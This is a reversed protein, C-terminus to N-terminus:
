TFSKTNRGNLWKRDTKIVKYWMSSILKYILIGEIKRCGHLIPYWFTKCYNQDTETNTISNKQKQNLKQVYSMRNALIKMYMWVNHQWPHSCQVHKFTYIHFWMQRYLTNAFLVQVFMLWFHIHVHSALLCKVPIKIYHKCKGYVNRM